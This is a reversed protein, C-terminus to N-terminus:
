LVDSQVDVGCGKDDMASDVRRPRLHPTHQVGMSRRADPHGCLRMTQQRDGLVCELHEFTHCVVVEFSDCKIVGLLFPKNGVYAGLINEDKAVM